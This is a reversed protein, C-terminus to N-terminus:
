EDKFFRWDLKSDKLLEDFSSEEDDTPDFLEAFSLDPNESLREEASRAVRKQKVEKKPKAEEEAVTLQEKLQALLAATSGGVSEGVHFAEEKPKEKEPKKPPELKDMAYDPKMLDREGQHGSRNGKRKKAM